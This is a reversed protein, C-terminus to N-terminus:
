TAWKKPLTKSAPNGYEDAGAFRVVIKKGAPWDGTRQIYFVIRQGDPRRVAGSYPAFFATGNFAVAFTGGGDESISVVINEIDIFSSFCYTTFKLAQTLPVNHQGDNPISGEFRPNIDSSASGYQSRGYPDLGYGGREGTATM